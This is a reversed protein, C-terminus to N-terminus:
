RLGDAGEQAPLAHSGYETSSLQPALKACVATGIVHDAPLPVLPPSDLRANRNDGLGDSTGPACWRRYTTFRDAGPALNLM